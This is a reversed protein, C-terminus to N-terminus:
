SFLACVGMSLASKTVSLAAFWLNRNDGGSFM